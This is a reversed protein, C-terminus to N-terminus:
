KNSSNVSNMADFTSKLSTKTANFQAILSEMNGFQKTYRALLSKMRVDLKELDAEYGVKKQSANDSRTQLIGTASTITNLKKFADGAFGAALTSYSGLNNYGGTMSKVVDDYHDTLAENLKDEDLSMKGYQDVSVGMQWFAKLTTGSTSSTGTFMGKLQSRLYVVTSDGVLTKGYTELTSEPDSVEKLIDFANQYATVMTKFKEVLATNDRSLSVTSPSGGTAKLNFTVGTLVDNITNSTRTFSLGDVTMRADAASQNATHAQDIAVGPSGSGAGYEFNLAFSKAAGEEGVIMIRYPTATGDKTNLLSAKLGLGSANIAALVGEPTDMGSPINVSKTYGVVPLDTVNTNATTATFTVVSGNAASANFGSLSGSFDGTAPDAPSQGNQVGAYLQAVQAATLSQSATFKLGGVVVSQGAVMSVFNVASSETQPSVGQTIAVTPATGSSISAGLDAVNSSPTASTFTLAALTNTGSSFGTLTGSYSGLATSPGTSAGDSLSAFAEAVETATLSQMPGATFTLGAVTVSEGAALPGFSLQATETVASRGATTTVSPTVSSADGISLNMVMNRGNNLTTTNAAFGQTITRQARALQNVQIAHSGVQASSDATFAFQSSDSSSTVFSNYDNRNRLASMADKLDSLMLKVASFGSIVADSKSIKDNLANTRPIREADVLNQALAAVDIGSGAGLSAMLKQAASRNAAAVDAAASSSSSTVGTTSM